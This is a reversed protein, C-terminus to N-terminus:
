EREKKFKLVIMQSNELIKSFGELKGFIGKLFFSELYDQECLIVKKNPAKLAILHSKEDFITTTKSDYFAKLTLELDQTQVRGSKIDLVVGGKFNIQSGNQSKSVM